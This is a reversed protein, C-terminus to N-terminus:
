RGNGFGCLLRPVALYRSQLLTSRTNFLCRINMSYGIVALPGSPSERRSRSGLGVPKPITDIKLHPNLFSSFRINSM